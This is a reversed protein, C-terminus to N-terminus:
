AISRWLGFHSACIVRQLARLLAVSDGKQVCVDVDRLNTCPLSCFGSRMVIPVDPQAIRFGEVLGSDKEMQHCELVIADIQGGFATRLATAPDARTVEYGAVQLLECCNSLGVTGDDICLIRPM